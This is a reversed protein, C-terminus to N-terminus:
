EGKTVENLAEKAIHMCYTTTVTRLGGDDFVTAIKLLAERLRKNEARLKNREGILDYKSEYLMSFNQSPM